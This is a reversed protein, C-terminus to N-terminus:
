LIITAVMRTNLKDVTESQFPFIICTDNAFVTAHYSVLEIFVIRYECTEM